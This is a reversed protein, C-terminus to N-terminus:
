IEATEDVISRDVSSDYSSSWGADFIFVREEVHVLGPEGM